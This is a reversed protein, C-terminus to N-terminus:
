LLEKYLKKELLSLDKLVIGRREVEVAKLDKLKRIERNVTERSLGTRAAIGRETVDLFLKGDSEVIGYRKAEVYIEYAVRSLANAAMLSVARGLFEDLGRYVRRLLAMMVEPNEELMTVVKANPAKQVVVDTEAAYYYRNVLRQDIAEAIPVFSSPRFINLIIEDGKYNVSYKKIRGRRLYFVDKSNEGAFVLIQGKAYTREPYDSFFEELTAKAKLLDM